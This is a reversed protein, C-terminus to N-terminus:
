SDPKRRLAHPRMPISVEVFHTRRGVRGQGNDSERATTLTWTFNPVDPRRLFFMGQSRFVDTLFVRGGNVEAVFPVGRGTMDMAAFTSVSQGVPVPIQIREGPADSPNFTKVEAGGFQVGGTKEVAPDEPQCPAAAGPRLEDDSPDEEAEDESASEAVAKSTSGGGM